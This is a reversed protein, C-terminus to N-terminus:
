VQIYENIACRLCCAQLVTHHTTYTSVKCIMVSSPQYVEWQGNIEQWSSSLYFAKIAKLLIQVAKCPWSVSRSM